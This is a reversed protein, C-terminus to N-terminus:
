EIVYHSKITGILDDINNEELIVEEVEKLRSKRIYLTLEMAEDERRVKIHSEHLKLIYYFLEVAMISDANYTEVEDQHIIYEEISGVQSHSLKIQIEDELLDKMEIYIEGKDKRTKFTAYILYMMIQQFLQKDVQNYIEEQEPNFILNADAYEKSYAEVVNEVLAVLNYKNYIVEIYGGRLKHIDIMNRIIRMTENCYRRMEKLDEMVEKQNGFDLRLLDTASNIVNIPTKLEHSLNVIMDRYYANDNLSYEAKSLNTVKERWPEKWCALYACKLIYYYEMTGLLIFPPLLLTDQSIYQYSMMFHNIVKCILFLFFAQYSKSKYRDKYLVVIILCFIGILIMLGELIVKGGIYSTSQGVIPFIFGSFTVVCFGLSILIVCGIAGIRKFLWIYCVCICWLDLLNLQIRANIANFPVNIELLLTVFIFIIVMNKYIATVSIIKLINIKNKQQNTILYAGMSLTTGIIGFVFQFFYISSTSFCVKIVVYLLAVALWEIMMEKHTENM